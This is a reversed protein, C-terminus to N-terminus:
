NSEKAMASPVYALRVTLRATQDDRNGLMRQALPALVREGFTRESVCARPEPL